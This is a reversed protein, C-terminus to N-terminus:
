PKTLLEQFLALARPDDSQGLWFLASRRLEPDPSTRAVKILAPVGEDKPRQSLAFIASKRVERDTTDSAALDALDKTAADGAAQGLWFVASKRTKVPVGGDRALHLLRTWVVASDALTAAFIADGGDSGRSTGLRPALDLLWAAAAPASVTGLDTGSGPRWRGGVYTRLRTVRHNELTLAVRVPGSECDGEWELSEERTRVQINRGTGCVGPRAAYSFHVRGDPAAAVRRALDATQGRAAAPAAALAAAALALALRTTTMTTGTTM